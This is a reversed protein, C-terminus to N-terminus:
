KGAQWCIIDKATDVIYLVGNGDVAISDAAAVPGDPNSTLLLPPLLERNGNWIKHIGLSDTVYVAGSADVAISQLNTLGRDITTVHGAPSIKRVAQNGTDTVYVYGSDDVAIGHPDKFRAAGRHGNAFGPVRNTGAVTTVLGDPTIQRIVHNDKDAVFVNGRKDVAVSWPNRFHANDGKADKWGPNGPSGALLSVSGEPSIKRITDSAFEAVYVNGSNDVAIGSPATFRAETGEGGIEGAKGAMGALTRVDGSPSIKRITNNGMDAVYIYGAGDVALAGPSAFRAQNGLGDNAGAVGIAGVM